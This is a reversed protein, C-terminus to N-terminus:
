PFNQRDQKRELRVLGLLIEWLEPLKRLHRVTDELGRVESRRELSFCAVLFEQALTLSSSKGVWHAM